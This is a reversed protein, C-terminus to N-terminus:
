ALVSIVTRASPQTKPMTWTKERRLELGALM